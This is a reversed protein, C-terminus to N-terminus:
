ITNIILQFAITAVHTYVEAIKSFSYGLIAQIYRLETGNELSHTAFSHRLM